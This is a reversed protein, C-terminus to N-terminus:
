REIERTTENGSDRNPINFPVDSIIELHEDRAELKRTNRHKRNKIRANRIYNTAIGRRGTERRSIRLFISM